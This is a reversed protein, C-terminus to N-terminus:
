QHAADGSAPETDRDNTIYQNAWRGGLLIAFDIFLLIYYLQVVVLSHRVRHLAILDPWVLLAVEPVHFLVALAFFVKLFDAMYVADQMAEVSNKDLLEETNTELVHRKISERRLHAVGWVGVLVLARAFFTTRMVSESPLSTDLLSAGTGFASADAVAAVVAFGVTGGGVVIRVRRRVKSDYHAPYEGGIVKALLRVFWMYPSQM